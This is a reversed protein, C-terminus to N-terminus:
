ETLQKDDGIERGEVIQIGGAGGGASMDSFSISVMPAADERAAQSLALKDQHELGTLHSSHKWHQALANVLSQVDKISAVGRIPEGKNTHGIVMRKLKVVEGTDPDLECMEELKLLLLKQSHPNVDIHSASVRRAEVAKKLTLEDAAALRKGAREQLCEAWGQKRKMRGIHEPHMGVRRAIEAQTIGPCTVYLEFANQLSRSSQAVAKPFVFGRKKRKPSELTDTPMNM